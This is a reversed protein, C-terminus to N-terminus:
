KLGNKHRLASIEQRLASLVREHEVVAEKLKEVCFELGELGNLIDKGLIKRRLFEIAM